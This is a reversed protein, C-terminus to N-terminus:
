RYAERTQSHRAQGTAPVFPTASPHQVAPHPVPPRPVAPRPAVPEPARGDADALAATLRGRARHLRVAFNVGSIGLAEAARRADLGHWAVLTLVERDMDSLTDLAALATERRGIVDAPDDPLGALPERAAIRVRLADRRGDGRLQGATVKRAVGYLWPLPDDPVDGIRRWAILFTEAAVDGAREPDLRVLAYGLVARLHQRYLVEFRERDSLAAARRAHHTV